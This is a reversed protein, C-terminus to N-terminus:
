SCFATTTVLVAGPVFIEQTMNIHVTIGRNKVAPPLQPFHIVKHKYHNIRFESKHRIGLRIGIGIKITIERNCVVGIRYSKAM